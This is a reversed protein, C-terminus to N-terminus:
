EEDKHLITGRYAGSFFLEIRAGIVYQKQNIDGFITLGAGYDFKLKYFMQVAVYAGIESMVPHIVSDKGTVDTLTRPYFGNTYSLGGYAAWFYNYSEKRYGAGMHLQVQQKNYFSPGQLFGGTQFYAKRIHFNFDFGTVVFGQNWINNYGKGIGFTVYNNYIRYKKGDIKIEKKKDFEEAYMSKLLSNPESGFASKPNQANTLAEFGIFLAFLLNKVKM